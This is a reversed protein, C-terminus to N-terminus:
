SALERLKRVTNWNRTTARVPAVQRAVRAALKSRGIGGPLFLYVDRGVVALEEPAFDAGEVSLVSPEMRRDLFTVHLATAPALPVLDAYPNARVVAELEDATRLVVAVDSGFREAIAQELRDTLVVADREDHSFVVNGSQVYTRVDDLGAAEFVDRLEAMPVPRKGGVNIGRLLAVSRVAGM